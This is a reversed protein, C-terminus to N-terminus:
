GGSPMRRALQNVPVLFSTARSGEAAKAPHAYACGALVIQSRGKVDARQLFYDEGTACYSHDTSWSNVSGQGSRAMRFQTGWGERKKRLTPYLHHLTPVRYRQFVQQLTNVLLSEAARWGRSCPTYIGKLDKCIIKLGNQILAQQFSKSALHERM